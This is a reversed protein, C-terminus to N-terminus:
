SQMKQWRAILAGVQRLGETIAAPGPSLIDASIIEVVLGNRVAPIADWGPRACLTEPEFKKGCWSGIIIDPARRV